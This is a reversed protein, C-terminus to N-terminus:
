EIVVHWRSLCVKYWTAIMASCTSSILRTPQNHCISENEYTPERMEVGDSQGVMLIIAM